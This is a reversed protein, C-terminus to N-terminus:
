AAGHQRSRPVAADLETSPLYDRLNGPHLCAAVAVLGLRDAVAVLAPGIMVAWSDVDHGAPCRLEDSIPNERLERRHVVCVRTPPSGNPLTGRYPLRRLVRHQDQDSPAVLGRSALSCTYAHFRHNGRRPLFPKRCGAYACTRWLM